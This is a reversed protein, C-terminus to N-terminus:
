NLSDMVVDMAGAPVAKRWEHNGSKIQGRLVEGDIGPVHVVKKTEIGNEACLKLIDERGSWVVVGSKGDAVDVVRDLWAKDDGGAEVVHIFVDMLAEQVLAASIMEQVQDASFMEGAEVSIAVHVESCLNVMGQIVM